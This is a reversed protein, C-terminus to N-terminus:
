YYVSSDVHSICYKGENDKLDLYWVGPEKGTLQFEFVANVMQVVEKNCCSKLAKFVEAVGAVPSESTETGMM